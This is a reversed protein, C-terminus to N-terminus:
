DKKLRNISLSLAIQVAVGLGEPVIVIFLVIASIAIKALRLLTEESFLGDAKFLGYIFNFGVQILISLIIILGGITAM